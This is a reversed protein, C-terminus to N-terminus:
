QCCYWAFHVPQEVLQTQFSWEEAKPTKLLHLHWKKIVQELFNNIYSTITYNNRWQRDNNVLQASVTFM